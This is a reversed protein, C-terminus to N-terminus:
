FHLYPLRKPSIYWHAVFFSFQPLTCSYRSLLAHLAAAEPESLALAQTEPVTALAASFEQIKRGVAEVNPAADFVLSASAPAHGAAPASRLAAAAGAGYM